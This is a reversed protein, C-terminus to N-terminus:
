NLKVLKKEFRETGILMSCIYMGQSLLSVDIGNHYAGADQNGYHETIVVKGTIDTVQLLVDASSPVSYAVYIFDAAPNPYLSFSNDGQTINTVGTYESGCQNLGTYYNQVSVIRQKLANIENTTDSSPIFSSIFAL